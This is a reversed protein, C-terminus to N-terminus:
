IRIIGKLRCRESASFSRRKLKDEQRTGGLSSLASNTWFGCRLSGLGFWDFCCFRFLSFLFPEIRDRSWPTKEPHVDIEPLIRAPLRGSLFRLQQLVHCWYRRGQRRSSIGSSLELVGPVKYAYASNRMQKSFSAIM